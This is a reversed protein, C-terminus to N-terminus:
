FDLNIFWRWLMTFSEVASCSNTTPFSTLGSLIFSSILRPWNFCLKWLSSFSFALQSSKRQMEGALGCAIVLATAIGMTMTSKMLLAILFAKEASMFIFIFSFSTSLTGKVFVVADFLILLLQYRKILFILLLLLLRLLVGVVLLSAM